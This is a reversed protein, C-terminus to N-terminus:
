PSCRECLAAPSNPQHIPKFDGDGIGPHRPTSPKAWAGSGDGGNAAHDFVATEPDEASDEMRQMRLADAIRDADGEKTIFGSNSLLKAYFSSDREKRHGDLWHGKRKGKPKAM